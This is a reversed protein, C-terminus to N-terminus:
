FFILQRTGVVRVYLAFIDKLLWTYFILYNRSTEPFFCIKVIDCLTVAFARFFSSAKDSAPSELLKRGCVNFVCNGM